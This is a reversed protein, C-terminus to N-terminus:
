TVKIIYYLQKPTSLHNHLIFLETQAGGPTVWPDLLNYTFRDESPWKVLIYDGDGMNSTPSFLYTWVSMDCINLIDVSPSALM